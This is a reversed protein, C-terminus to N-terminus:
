TQPQSFKDTVCIVATSIRSPNGSWNFNKWPCKTKWSIRHVLKMPTRLPPFVHQQGWGQFNPSLVMFHEFIQLWCRSESWNLEQLVPLVNNVPTARVSCLLWSWQEPTICHHTQLETMEVGEGAAERQSVQSRMTRSNRKTAYCYCQLSDEFTWM